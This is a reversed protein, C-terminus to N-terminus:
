RIPGHNADPHGYGRELAPVGLRQVGSRYGRILGPNQAMGSAVMNRLETLWQVMEPSMTYTGGQLGSYGRPGTPAISRPTTHIMRDLGTLSRAQANAHRFPNLQSEELALQERTMQQQSKSMKSAAISNAAATGGGGIAALLLMTGLSIPEYYRDLSENGLNRVHQYM